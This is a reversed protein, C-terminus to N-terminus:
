TVISYMHIYIYAVPKERQATSITKSVNTVCQLYTCTYHHHLTGRLTILQLNLSGLWVYIYIYTYIHLVLTRIYTHVARARMSEVCTVCVGSLKNHLHSIKSCKRKKTCFGSRKIVNFFLLNNNLTTVIFQRWTITSLLLLSFLAICIYANAASTINSEYANANLQRTVNVYSGHLTFLPLVCM